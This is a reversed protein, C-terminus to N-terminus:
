NTQDLSYNVFLIALTRFTFVNPLHTIDKHILRQSLVNPLTVNSHLMKWHNQAVQIAINQINSM